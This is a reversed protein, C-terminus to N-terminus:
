ARWEATKASFGTPRLVDVVIRLPAPEAVALAVEVSEGPGLRPLAADSREMPLGGFGHVVARVRYDDLAYAPVSSRCRVTASIGSATRRVILAEVPSAAERLAEYSPKRAGYVDVVGHVRQKLAGLGKDGIHTRYDNYCFFILGSVADNRRFTATHGELVSVRREDGSAHKPDCECYGYESVVIPKGPFAAAIRELAPGVSEASGGYWTEYYENWSIFDLLGAADQGPEQQLSNSAYTLLRKPDLRRAEDRLKEIFRRAVPNKGNVENCLGWSFLCPHNRDREIMERLQALGNELIAPDPEGAMGKFTEAGWAPVECQVLIGNRDCWELVRRDQPMHHRTFVCNLAKIDAHDRAYLWGPEAAGHDPHSAPMREVGMLRLKEGNLQFAGDRIEIKRIGFMTEHRHLSGASSAEVVLRYLHPHDFHWLRPKEITRPPLALERQGGPEVSVLAGRDSLVVRGSEEEVIQFVVHSAHAAEAANRLFVRAAVRAKGALDPEADVEVRDVFVPPTVLLSVPRVIGGDRAWDYSRGRPLMTEDFRNDVRVVLTNVRGPQLQPTLDLTFATYGKGLHRGVPEGNLWVWSSHFVAEFEARVWLGRWEVPVDIERRYWASGGYDAAEGDVNWTHPVAVPRWGATSAGAASWGSAEGSDDPDLRFLWTGELSVRDGMPRGAIRCSEVTGDRAAESALGGALPLFAGASGLQKVMTRRDVTM